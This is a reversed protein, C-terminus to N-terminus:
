DEQAFREYFATIEKRNARKELADIVSLDTFSQPSNQIFFMIFDHEGAEVLARQGVPSLQHQKLYLRVSQQLNWIGSDRSPTAKLLQILEVEGEPELKNHSCYEDLCGTTKKMVMSEETAAKTKQILYVEGEPSLKKNSWLANRFDLNFWTEWGEDILLKEVPFHLYCHELMYKLAEGIISNPYKKGEEYIYVQAQPSFGAADSRTLEGYAKLMALIETKRGRTLILMQREHSLPISPFTGDDQRIGRLASIERMIMKHLGREKESEERLQRIEEDSIQEDSIKEEM